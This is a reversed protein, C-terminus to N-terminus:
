NPVCNNCEYYNCSECGNAEVEEHVKRYMDEYAILNMQKACSDCRNNERRDKPIVIKKLGHKKPCDGIGRDKWYADVYDRLQKDPIWDYYTYGDEDVVFTDIGDTKMLIDFANKSHIFMLPPMENKDKKNVDCGKDIFYKMAEIRNKRVAPHLLENDDIFKAANKGIKKLAKEMLDRSYENFERTCAKLIWDGNETTIPVGFQALEVIESYNEARYMTLLDRSIASLKEIGKKYLFLAICQWLPGSIWSYVFMFLGFSDNITIENRIDFEEVEETEFRVLCFISVLNLYLYFSLFRYMWFAIVMLSQWENNDTMDNGGSFSASIFILNGMADPTKQVFCMIFCYFFEIALIITLAMGGLNIWILTAVFVRNTIELFRWFTRLLYRPNIIPCSKESFEINKYNNKFMTGM